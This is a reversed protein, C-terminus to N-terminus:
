EEGNYDVGVALKIKAYKTGIKEFTKGDYANVCVKADHVGYSLEEFFQVKNIEKGSELGLSRYLIEGSDDYVTAILVTTNSNPNGFRLNETASEDDINIVSNFYFDFSKSGRTKLSDIMIRQQQLNFVSKEAVAESEIRGNYEALRIETPVNVLVSRSFSVAGFTIIMIPIVIFVIIRFYNFSLLFKKSTYYKLKAKLEKRRTNRKNKASLKKSKKLNIRNEKDSIKQRKRRIEESRRQRERQKREKEELVRKANKEAEAKKKQLQKKRNYNNKGAVTKGAVPMTKKNPM